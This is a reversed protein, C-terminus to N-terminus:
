FHSELPIGDIDREFSTNEFYVQLVLSGVLGDNFELEILDWKSM